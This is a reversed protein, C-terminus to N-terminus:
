LPLRALDFEIVPLFVGTAVRSYTAAAKFPAAAGDGIFWKASRGSGIM